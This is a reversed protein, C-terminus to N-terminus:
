CKEKLIYGVVSIFFIGFVTVYLLLKSYINQFFLDYHEISNLLFVLCSISFAVMFLRKLYNKALFKEFYSLAALSCSLLCINLIIWAKAFAMITIESLLAIFSLYVVISAFYILWVITSKGNALLVNVIMNTGSHICVGILLFISIKNLYPDNEKLWLFHIESLNSATIAFFVGSILFIITSWEIFMYKARNSNNIKVIRPFCASTIPYILTLLSFPIVGALNYIGLSDISFFRSIYVKDFQFVVLSLVSFVSVGSSYSFFQKLETKHAYKKSPALSRTAFYKLFVIELLSTIILIYFYTNLTSSWKTIIMILMFGQLVLISLSILNLLLIKKQGILFGSYLSKPWSAIFLVGMLRIINTGNLSDDNIQLWTHAIQHAFFIITLGLVLSCIIYILEVSKLIRKTQDSISEIEEALIKNSGLGMGFDFFVMVAQISGYFGILGYAAIGIYNIYIPVLFFRLIINIGRLIYNSLADLKM